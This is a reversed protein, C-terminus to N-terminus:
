RSREIEVLVTELDAGIPAEPKSVRVVATRVRPDGLVAAAIREALGEILSYREESVIRRVEEVLARYDVTADLRDTRGAEALDVHAEVDVVFTQGREREEVTVGHHGSVRLGRVVIRDAM